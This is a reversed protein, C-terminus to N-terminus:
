NLEVGIKARVEALKNSAVENAKAAGTRLIDIVMSRDDSLQNRKERLPTLKEKLNELLIEKSEKYSINGDGYRKEIEDINDSVVKHLAFLTDGDTDKPDNPATSDTVISMVAKELEQDTAFLPITNNYSKSMKQGDFGRIASIDAQILPEPISFTEGYLRNFKEAADRAFELHQKQDQGVPVVNTNYLLIDASMLMPYDFTGVTIEKNKTRAEKFAHARMLYPVTTMCNFIWALETHAPVASQQFFVANKPDLGIALYDIALDLIYQSLAEPEGGLDTSTLAHYDAIMVYSTYDHQMDVIPKMAGFYNGIHSMGTPKVGTLLVERNVNEAM